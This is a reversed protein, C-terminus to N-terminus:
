LREIPRSALRVFRATLTVGVISLGVLLGWWMGPAGIGAGEAGARFTLYLGLPLGVLYHGSLNAVFPGRTDGAGRLAGAAVVQMGDSVQFLAAIGVLPLAAARVHPQDTLADVIPGPVLLLIGACAAMFLTASGIATLGARRAGAADGRGVAQGVRVSTAASAGLPVMFSTAALTLAVNHAALPVEGLRGMVFTVISFGGVEVFFHMGVPLGVSWLRLLESRRPKRRADDDPTPIRSIARAGWGLKIWAALSSVLGAGVVGLAPVGMAPLGVRLLGADGMVLLWSLPANAVNALVVCTLLPRTVGESQLLSRVAAFALIPYLGPLRSLVYSLVLDATDPAIGMPELALCAGVALAAVPVAVATSLWIGQWLLRRALVRENAGHAQAILPDLGILIGIGIVSVLFFVSGGMGVAGLELSGVRGLVATDVLSLMQDGLHVAALPAALKLLPRLESTARGADDGDPPTPLSLDM